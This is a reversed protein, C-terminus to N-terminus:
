RERWNLLLRFIVLAEALTQNGGACALAAAYNYDRVRHWFELTPQFARDEIGPMQQLETASAIADGALRAASSLTGYVDSCPKVATLAAIKENLRQLQPDHERSVLFPKAREPM